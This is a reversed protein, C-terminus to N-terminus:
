YKIDHHCIVKISTYVEVPNGPLVYLIDCVLFSVSWVLIAQIVSNASPNWVTLILLPNPLSFSLCRTSSHMTTQHFPSFGIDHWTWMDM